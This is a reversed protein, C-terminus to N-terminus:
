GYQASTVNYSNNIAINIQNLLSLPFVHKQKTCNVLNIELYFAFCFIILFQISFKGKIAVSRPTVKFCFISHLNKEECYGSIAVCAAFFTIHWVFIFTVALGSYACFIQVSPFPSYIGIVFSVIDTLSTITISVAAESLMLGMREPVDLKVSTRRWAALMVFSDDIGIGLLNLFYFFIPKFTSNLTLHKQLVYKNAFISRCSEIWHISNGFVYCM